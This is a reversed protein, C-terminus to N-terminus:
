KSSFVFFWTPYFIDTHVLGDYMMREREFYKSWFWVSMWKQQMEGVKFDNENSLVVWLSFFFNVTLNEHIEDAWQTCWFTEFNKVKATCM